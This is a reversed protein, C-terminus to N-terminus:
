RHSMRPAHHRAPVAALLRHVCQGAAKGATKGARGAAAAQEAEATARGVAGKESQSMGCGEGVGEM